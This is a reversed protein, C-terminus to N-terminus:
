APAVFESGDWVRSTFASLASRAIASPAYLLALEEGLTTEGTILGTFNVFEALTGRQSLNTAAVFPEPHIWGAAALIPAVELYRRPAAADDVVANSSARRAVWSAEAVNGSGDLERAVLRFAEDAPSEPRAIAVPDAAPDVLLTGPFVSLRRGLSALVVENDLSTSTAGPLSAPLSARPARLPLATGAAHLTAIASMLPAHFDARVSLLPPISAQAAGASRDNPVNVFGVPVAGALTEGGIAPGAIGLAGAVASSRLDALGARELVNLYGGVETINLPAPIRAPFVDGQMSLRQLLVRQAELVDPRVGSRILEVLADVLGAFSADVPSAASDTTESM